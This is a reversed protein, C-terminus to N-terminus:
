EFHLASINYDNTPASIPTADLVTFGVPTRSGTRCKGGKISIARRRKRSEKDPHPSRVRTRVNPGASDTKTGQPPQAGFSLYVNTRGITGSSSPRTPLRPDTQTSPLLQAVGLTDIETLGSGRGATLSRPTFAAHHPQPSRGPSLQRGDNPRGEPRLTPLLLVSLVQARVRRATAM